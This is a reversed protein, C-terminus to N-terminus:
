LECNELLDGATCKLAKALKGINVMSINREGREVSSIYTWHLNADRALGTQSIKVEKRRARLNNGFMMQMKEHAKSEPNKNLSRM